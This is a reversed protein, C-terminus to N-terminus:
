VREPRFRAPSEAGRVGILGAVAAEARRALQARDQHELGAVPIPTGFRVEIKGPRVRFGDRPLVQGAGVIGVPVVQVDAVGSDIASSFGGTKFRGFDGPASRTGEPFSVLSGGRALLEGARDISALARRRDGRDVFVMGMASIYWGLFPVRSLEQKALFHLPAPVAVFLAPIDIWSQHNAVFYYPRRFDLQEAGRVVVRSGGIAIQGPAWVKRALWLSPQRRRSVFVVLLAVSIWFAGWLLTAVFQVANLPLWLLTSALRKM